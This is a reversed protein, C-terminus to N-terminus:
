NPCIINVTNEMIIKLPKKSILSGGFVRFKEILEPCEKELLEAIVLPFICTKITSLNPEMTSIRKKKNENPLYTEPSDINNIKLIQAHEEIFKPSWVYPAQKAEIGNFIAKFFHRDKKYLHPSIWIADVFANKKYIGTQPVDFLSQEILFSLEASLAHKVIKKGYEKYLAYEALSLAGQAVVIIDCKQMAEAKTIIKNSYQEWTSSEIPSQPTATNIIYSNEINKCKEFVEHLNIVNQRIETSFLNIKQYDEVHITIGITTKKSKSMGAAEQILPHYGLIKIM